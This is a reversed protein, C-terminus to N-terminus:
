PKRFKDPHAALLADRTPTFICSPCPKKLLWGHPIRSDVVLFFRGDFEVLVRKLGLRKVIEQFNEWHMNAVHHGFGINRGIQRPQPLPSLTFCNGKRWPPPPKWDFAVMTVMGARAPVELRMGATLPLPAREPLLQRAAAACLGVIAIAVLSSRVTFRLTLMRM